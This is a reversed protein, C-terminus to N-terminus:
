HTEIVHYNWVYTKAAVDAVAFNLSFGNADRTIYRSKAATSLATDSSAPELVIMPPTTYPKAFTVHLQSGTAWAASGTTLTVQGALDTANSLSASALTGSAPDAVVTPATPATSRIHGSHYLDVRDGNLHLISEGLVAGDSFVTDNRFGLEINTQGKQVWWGSDVGNPFGGQSFDDVTYLVTNSQEKFSGYYFSNELNHGDGTIFFQHYGEGHIMGLQSDGVGGYGCAIRLAASIELPRDTWISANSDDRVGITGYGDVPMKIIAMTLPGPFQAFNIYHGAFASDQAGLLSNSGDVRLFATGELDPLLNKWSLGDWGLLQGGYTSGQEVLVLDGVKPLGNISSSDLNIQWSINSSSDRSFHYIVNNGSSLNTFLIRDGERLSVGDVSLSGNGLPLSTRSNDRAIVNPRSNYSGFSPHNFIKLDFNSM